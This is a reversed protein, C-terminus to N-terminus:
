VHVPLGSSRAYAFLDKLPPVGVGQVNDRITAKALLTADGALAVAVAIGSERGAKALHFPLTARTPDEAGATGVFLLQTM